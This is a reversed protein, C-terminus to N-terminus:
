DGKLALEVAAIVRKDRLMFSHWGFPITVEKGFPLLSSVSPEIMLDQPSWITTLPIGDLRNADRALDSLFQSGPRMEQVGDLTELYATNTGHNPTSIMIFHVLRELGGLRQLYYRAVLGGMSYGVLNFREDPGV